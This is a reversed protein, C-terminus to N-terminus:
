NVVPQGAVTMSVRRGNQDYTYNITGLPTTEQAIRDMGSGSCSVCVYDSYTYDIYGSVSDNIYDVRGAADYTYDTYSGDDYTIRKLRNMLDYQNYHDDERRDTVSKLNDGTTATIQLGTTAYVEQRGLQDTMRTIRDRDDYGYTTCKGEVVVMALNGKLDYYYRTVSGLADTVGTVRNMM